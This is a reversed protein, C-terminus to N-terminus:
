KITSHEVIHGIEHSTKTGDTSLSVHVHSWSSQKRKFQSVLLLLALV